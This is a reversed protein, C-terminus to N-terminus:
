NELWYRMLATVAQPQELTVMHGSDEIITHKAGPIGQYIKRFDELKFIKDQAAHIVLSNAKISNLYPLTNERQILIQMQDVFAFQQRKFMALVAPRVRSDYVFDNALQEAVEAFNGAQAQQLAQKRREIKEPPDIEATTSLVCLQKVKEPYRRAVELVLWGGMSHGALAFSDPAATLIIDLIQNFNKAPRIDPIIINAVDQLHKVQHQWIEDDSLIGYILVLNAKNM